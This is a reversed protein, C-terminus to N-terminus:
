SGSPAQYWLVLNARSPSLSTSRSSSRCCPMATLTTSGPATAVSHPSPAVSLRSRWLPAAGVGGLGGAHSADQGGRGAVGAASGRGVPDRGDDDRRGRAAPGPAAVDDPGTGSRQQEQAAPQRVPGEVPEHQPQEAGHRSGSCHGRLPLWGCSSRRGLREQSLDPKTRTGNGPCRTIQVLVQEGERVPLAPFDNEVPATELVAVSEGGCQEVARSLRDGLLRVAEPELPEELRHVYAV